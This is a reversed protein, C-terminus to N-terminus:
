NRTIRAKGVLIYQTQIIQTYSVNLEILYGTLETWATRPTLYFLEFMDFMLKWLRIPLYILFRMSAISSLKKKNLKDKKQMKHLYVLRSYSQIKLM